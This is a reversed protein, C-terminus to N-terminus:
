GIPLRLDPPGAPTFEREAYARRHLASADAGARHAALLLEPDVFEGIPNAAFEPAERVFASSASWDDFNDIQLELSNGDPDVYYFSLTMGHDLVAHPLIGEDRLREYLGLLDALTAYEFATHHIGTHTLKEPDDQLAPGTILAIRHNAEDNSMWAGGEFAHLPEMGLVLGYWDIMEQLRTTKLNVHHLTPRVPALKAPPRVVTATTEPDIM